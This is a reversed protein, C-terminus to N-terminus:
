EADVVTTQLRQISHLISPGHLLLQLSGQFINCPHSLCIHVIERECEGRLKAERFFVLQHTTTEGAFRWLFFCVNWSLVSGILFLRSERPECSRTSERTSGYMRHVWRGKLSSLSPHWQGHLGNTSPIATFMNTYTSPTNAFSLIRSHPTPRAALRYMPCISEKEPHQTSLFKQKTQPVQTPQASSFSPLPFPRVMDQLHWPWNIRSISHSLNHKQQTFLILNQPKTISVHYVQM